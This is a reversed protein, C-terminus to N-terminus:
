QTGLLTRVAHNYRHTHLSAIMGVAVYADYQGEQAWKIAAKMAGDTPEVRVKDPCPIPSCIALSSLPTGYWVRYVQCQQGPHHQSNRTRHSLPAPVHRSARCYPISLRSSRWTPTQSCRWRLRQTLYSPPDTQTRVNKAGLDVLDMGVERTVGKGIPLVILM